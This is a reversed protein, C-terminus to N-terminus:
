GGKDKKGEDLLESFREVMEPLDVLLHKLSYLRPISVDGASEASIVTPDFDAFLEDSDPTDRRKRKAM